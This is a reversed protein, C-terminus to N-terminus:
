TSASGTNANTEVIFYWTYGVGQNAVAVAPGIAM